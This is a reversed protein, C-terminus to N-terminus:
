LSQNPCPQPGMCAPRYMSSVAARRLAAPIPASSLGTPGARPRRCWPLQLAPAKPSPITSPNAHRDLPQRPHSCNHAQCPQISPNISRGAPPALCGHLKPIRALVLAWTPSRCVAPLGGDEMPAVPSDARAAAQHRQQLHATGGCWTALNQQCGSGTMQRVSAASKAPGIEKPM